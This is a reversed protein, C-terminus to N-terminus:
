ADTPPRGSSCGGRRDQPGCSVDGPFSRRTGPRNLCRLRQRRQPSGARVCDWASEAQHSRPRLYRSFAKRAWPCAPQPPQNPRIGLLLPSYRGRSQALRWVLAGHGGCRIPWQHAATTSPCTGAGAAGAVGQVVYDTAHPLHAHGPPSAPMSISCGAGTAFDGPGRRIGRFRPPGPPQNDPASLPLVAPPWASPGRGEPM